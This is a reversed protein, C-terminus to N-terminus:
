GPARGARGLARRIARSAQRARYRAYSAWYTTAGLERMQLSRRDAEFAPDGRTSAGPEFTAVTVPVYRKEIRRDGFCRMNFAWDAHLPYRLDYTGAIRFVDRGYFISQHCINKETLKRKTFPGDYEAGGWLVNGYVLAPGTAPLHERVSGLVGPYLRDGAGLFLLYRGNSREIGKNMADYIGRDPESAFHVRPDAVGALRGATDDTSAGDVILLEFDAFDQSLVSALTADLAAGSNRTPVILSYLPEPGPM